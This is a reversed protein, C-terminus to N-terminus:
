RQPDEGPARPSEDLGARHVLAVLQGRDRADVKMMARNLHTKVTHPSIFLMRGIEANDVGQAAALVVERERATLADFRARVRADHVPNPRTRLHRVVAQAAPGSLPAGGRAASAIAAVLEEPEVAKGVFGDAGAELAAVVDRDGDYTSLVLINVAALAPDDRIERIAAVGDQVPMRLDMLVVEPLLERVLAVGARGDGAEGVVEIEEGVLVARLGARIMAQDDVICLRIM